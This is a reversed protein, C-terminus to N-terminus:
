QTIGLRLQRSNVEEEIWTRVFYLNFQVPKSYPDFCLKADGSSAPFYFRLSGPFDGWPGGGKLKIFQVIYLSCLLILGREKGM